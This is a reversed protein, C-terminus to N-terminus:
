FRFGFNIMYRYGLGASRFSGNKAFDGEKVVLNYGPIKGALYDNIRQFFEAQQQPNLTTNIGARMNYFGVGPGLLVLDLSFKEGFLFQYGLEFGVTHVNLSLDTSVDGTFSSTNMRWTNNRAFRNFSYYPGIYVGRPAPYKNEKSLYFRYDGSIHFGSSGSNGLLRISDTQLGEAFDPLGQTGFNVSFSQNKKLLREYGFVISRSGFILPNSVNIRVTNKRERSTPESQAFAASGYLFLFALLPIIHRISKM